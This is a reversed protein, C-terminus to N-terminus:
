LQQASVLVGAARFATELEAALADFNKSTRYAGAAGGMYGKSSKELQIVGRGDSDSRVVVSVKFYQAFAGFLVNAIKNGREAVADCETPWAVRFKRAQLAEAVTAKARAADGVM